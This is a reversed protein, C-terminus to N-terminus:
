RKAIKRYLEIFLVNLILSSVPPISLLWYHQTIDVDYSWCIMLLGFTIGAGLFVVSTALYIYILVLNREDWRRM